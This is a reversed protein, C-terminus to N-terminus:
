RASGTPYTARARPQPLHEPHEAFYRRCLGQRRADWVMYTGFVLQGLSRWVDAWRDTVRLVALRLARRRLDDVDLLLAPARNPMSRTHRVSSTLRFRRLTERTVASLGTPAIGRAPCPRNASIGYPIFNLTRPSEAHWREVDFAAGDPVGAHHFKPYEFLLVSGAPIPPTAEIDATTIRHAIGFLPYVRMTEDVVRDFYASDGARVRAQVGQHEALVLLLHAAAESMQVVATNFFTGQLYWAQEDASLLNPLAFPVDGAAIRGCLYQTLRIRRRMHRLRTCKLASVVDDAHAVILERAQRPCCERFVLEYYVEAWIPMMVDRLRVVRRSRYEALVRAACRAVLADWEDHRLSALVTRTTRAVEDYRPGPELHEQHVHPGPALWYWFLDSLGAGHSRGNAAPAAYLRTFEAIGNARSAVAIGEAGNILAFIRGRLAVVRGPLWRPVTWVLALALLRRIM